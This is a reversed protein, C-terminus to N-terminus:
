APAVEGVLAQAEAVLQDLYALLAGKNVIVRGGLRYAGPLKGADALRYAHRASIGLVRAAEPISYSELRPDATPSKM